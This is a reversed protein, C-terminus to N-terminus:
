RVPAHEFITVWQRFREAIQAVATDQSITHARWKVHSSATVSVM